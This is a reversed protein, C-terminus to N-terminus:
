QLPASNCPADITPSGCVARLVSYDVLAVPDAKQHCSVLVAIGIAFAVFVIKTAM